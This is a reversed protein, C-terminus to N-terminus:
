IVYIFSNAQFFRSPLYYFIKRGIPIIMSESILRATQTGATPSFSYNYPSNIECILKSFLSIEFSYYYPLTKSGINM